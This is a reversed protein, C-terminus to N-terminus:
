IKKGAIPRTSFYMLKDSQEKDINSQKEFVDNLEKVLRGLTARMQKMETDVKESIQNVQVRSVTILVAFVIVIIFNTLSLVTVWDITDFFSM